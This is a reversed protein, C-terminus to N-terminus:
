YLIIKPEFQYVKGNLMTQTTFVNQDPDLDPDLNSNTNCRIFDYSDASVTNPQQLNINVQNINQEPIKNKEQEQEKDKNKTIYSVVKEKTHNIINKGSRIVIYVYRVIISNEPTNIRIYYVICGLIIITILIDM